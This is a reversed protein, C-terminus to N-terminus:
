TNGNPQLLKEDDVSGTIYALMRKWTMPAFRIM